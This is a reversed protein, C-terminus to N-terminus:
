VAKTFVTPCYRCQYKAEHRLHQLSGSNRSNCNRVATVAPTCSGMGAGGMCPEWQLCCSADCARQASSLSHSWEWVIHNLPRFRCSSLKWHLGLCLAKYSWVWSWSVKLYTLNDPVAFCDTWPHGASMWIAHMDESISLVTIMCLLISAYHPFSFSFKGKDRVNEVRRGAYGRTAQLLVLFDANRKRWCSQCSLYPIKKGVSNGLFDVRAFTCFNETYPPPTCFSAQLCLNFHSLRFCFTFYNSSPFFLDHQCKFAATITDTGGWASM